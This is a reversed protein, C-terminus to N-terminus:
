TKPMGSENHVVESVVAAPAQASAQVTLMRVKYLVSPMYKSGLTGWLHNQQEFTLTILEVVLRSIGDPLTPATQRSFVHKLQFFDVVHGLRILGTNHNDSSHSAILVYLNLKLEPNVKQLAGGASKTYPTQAKHIREEEINTLVMGLNSFQLNGDQDTMRSLTLVEPDDEELEGKLMLYSSVEQQLFVLADNIM